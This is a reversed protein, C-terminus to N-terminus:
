TSEDSLVLSTHSTLWPVVSVALLPCPAPAKSFMNARRERGRRTGSSATLTTGQSVDWVDNTSESQSCTIVAQNTLCQSFESTNGFPDTATATIILGGPVPTPFTVNFHKTCNAGTTVNTTGLFLEGEGYGSPDCAVNAFFELDFATSATGRCSAPL